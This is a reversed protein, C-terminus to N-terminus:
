LNRHTDLRNLFEWFSWKANNNADVLGGDWLSLSTDRVDILPFWYCARIYYTHRLEWCKDLLAMLQRKQLDQGAQTNGQASFGIETAMMMSGALGYKNMSTRFNKLLNGLTAANTAPDQGSSYPHYSVGDIATGPCNRDIYYKVNHLWPDASMSQGAVTAVRAVGGLHVRATSGAEKIGRVSWCYTTAYQWGDDLTAGWHYSTNPENWIEFDQVSYPAPSLERAVTKSWEYFNRKATETLPPSGGTLLIVFPEVNRARMRSITTKFYEGTGSWQSQYVPLRYVV